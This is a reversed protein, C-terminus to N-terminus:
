RSRIVQHCRMLVGGMLVKRASSGASMIKVPRRKRMSIRSSKAGSLLLNWYIFMGYQCFVLHAFVNLFHRIVLTCLTCLQLKLYLPLETQRFNNDCFGIHNIQDGPQVFVARVCVPFLAPLPNPAYRSGLVCFSLLKFMKVDTLSLFGWLKWWRKSLTLLKM